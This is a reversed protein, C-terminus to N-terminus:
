PASGTREGGLRRVLLVSATWAAACGAATTLLVLWLRDTAVAATVATGAALFAAAMPVVVQSTRAPPAGIARRRHLWGAGRLFVAGVILLALGVALRATATNGPKVTTAQHLEGAGLGWVKDRWTFVTVQDGPTLKEWVPAYGRMRLRFPPEGAGPDLTVWNGAARRTRGTGTSVVTAPWEALCDGNEVASGGIEACPRATRFERAESLPGPLLAFLVAAALVMASGVVAAFTVGMLSPRGRPSSSPAPHM